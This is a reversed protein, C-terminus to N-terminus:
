RQGRKDVAVLIPPCDKEAWGYHGDYGEPYCYSPALTKAPPNDYLYRNLHSEDHWLAVLNKDWDTQINKALTEAMQLYAQTSGGNFGGCYYYENNVLYATSEPTQEPTGVVYHTYRLGPTLAQGPEAARWIGRRGKRFFGPHLTATIGDSFIDGVPAVWHMDADLYFVQDYNELLFQKQELFIHYRRLTQNPYGLPPTYFAHVGPTMEGNSPADTWIVADAEPFFQKASSFMSNAFEWYRRGTAICLLATRM